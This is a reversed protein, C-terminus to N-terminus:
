KGDPEKIVSEIYKKLKLDEDSVIDIVGLVVAASYESSLTGFSQSIFSTAYGYTGDMNVILKCGLGLAEEFRPKLIKEYFEEGSAPGDTYFRAGPADSFDRSVSVELNSM